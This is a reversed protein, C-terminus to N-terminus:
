KNCKKWMFCHEMTVHERKKQLGDEFDLLEELELDFENSFANNMLEKYESITRYIASYNQNLEGSYFKDLTLREDNSMSEIICVVANEASLKAMTKMVNLCDEDNLYMFVGSVFIIDFKTSIESNILAQEMNQLNSVILNKNNYNKLNDEAREIMKSNGDVGVYYAGKELFFEGWRGVGCGVDLVKMDPTVSILKSMREKGQKDRKIAVEPKDDLYMVYNYIHKKEQSGREDFFNKVDDYSINKKEGLIRHQNIEESM